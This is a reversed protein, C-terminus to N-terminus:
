KDILNHHKLFEFIDMSNDSLGEEKVVKIADVLQKNQYPSKASKITCEVYGRCLKMEGNEIAKQTEFSNLDGDSMQLHCPFSVEASMFDLIDQKGYGSLWGKMSKNSFPCEKCMKACHQKSAVKNVKPLQTVLNEENWLLDIFAYSDDELWEFIELISSGEGDNLEETDQMDYIDDRTCDGKLAKISYDIITHNNDGFFTIPMVVEREKELTLIALQIELDTRM